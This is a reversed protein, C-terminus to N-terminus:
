STGPAYGACLWFMASPEDRLWNALIHRRMGQVYGFRILIEKLPLDIWFTAPAWSTGPAYGACVGFMAAPENRLWQALMHWRM